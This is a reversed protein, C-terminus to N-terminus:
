KGDGAEKKETEKGSIMKIFNEIDGCVFNFLVNRCIEDKDEELAYILLDCMAAAGLELTVSNGAYGGPNYILCIEAKRILEFQHLTLGSYVYRKIDSSLNNVVKNENLIPELVIHGAERLKRGAERIGDSFKRSGCIVIIM